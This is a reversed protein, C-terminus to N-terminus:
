YLMSLSVLYDLAATKRGNGDPSEWVARQHQYEWVDYRFAQTWAALGPRGCFQELLPMHAQRVDGCFTVKAKPADIVDLTLFGLHLRFAAARASVVVFAWGAVTAGLNGRIEESPPEGLGLKALLVDLVPRFKGDLENPIHLRMAEAWSPLSEPCRQVHKYVGWYFGLHGDLSVARSDRPHRYLHGGTDRLMKLLAAEVPLAEACGLVGLAVGTFILSDGICLAEDGSRCVVWGDEAMGLLRASAEEYTYPVPDPAQDPDRDPRCALLGLATLLLLRM